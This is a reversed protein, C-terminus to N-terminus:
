TFTILCSNLVWMNRCLELTLPVFTIVLKFTNTYVFNYKAAIDDNIGRLLSVKKVTLFSWVKNIKLCHILIMKIISLHNIDFTFIFVKFLQLKTLIQALVLIIIPFHKSCCWIECLANLNGYKSLIRFYPTRVHLRRLFSSWM